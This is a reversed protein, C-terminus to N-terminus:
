KRFNNYKKLIFGDVETLSGLPPSWGEEIIKDVFKYVITSLPINLRRFSSLIFSRQITYSEKM